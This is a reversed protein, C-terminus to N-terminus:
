EKFKKDLVINNSNKKILFFYIKEALIINKSTLYWIIISVAQTNFQFERRGRTLYCCLEKSTAM